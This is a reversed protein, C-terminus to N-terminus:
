ATLAACNYIYSSFQVSSLWTPPIYVDCREGRTRGNADAVSAGLQM